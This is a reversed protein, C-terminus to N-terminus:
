CNKNIKHYLNPVLRSLEVPDIPKSITGNVHENEQCLELVHPFPTPSLLMIIKPLRNNLREASERIFDWGDMGPMNIDLLIMDPFNPTDESELLYEYAQRADLFDLLQETLNAQRIAIKHLYLDAENDDVLLISDLMAM